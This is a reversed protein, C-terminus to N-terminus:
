FTFGNFFQNIFPDNATQQSLNRIRNLNIFIARHKRALRNRRRQRVQRLGFTEINIAFHNSVTLPRNVM